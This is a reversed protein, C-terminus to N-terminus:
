ALAGKLNLESYRDIQVFDNFQKAPRASDPTQIAVIQGIGFTRASNLVSESDDIFLTSELDFGIEKQLRQWFLQDEKPAGIDASSHIAKFYHSLDEKAFKIELTKPHANTALYVDADLAQLDQLFQGADVRLKIKHAISHKLEIIDIQFRDAWFDLSYWELTGAYSNILAMLDTPKIGQTRQLYDPLFESWFYNDYHLDLLTGDLDLLVTRVRPWDIM